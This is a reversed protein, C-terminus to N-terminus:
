DWWWNAHDPDSAKSHVQTLSAKKEPKEVATWPNIQVGGAAIMTKRTKKVLSASTAVQKPAPLKATLLGPHEGSLLPFSQGAKAFLRQKVILASVVALDMCNRLQGFVPDAMALDEYRNTMLDAWGQSIPDAQGSPHAVGNADLYDNETLCRVSAGRVEWALGADDRLLPQYNPELWWRPMMNRLGSGTAKAMEVYSPLGQVPSPDLALSVRKMRYDAGVMVRAFHTSGPVGRVTITQPGVQEEVGQAATQADVGRLQRMLSEVRRIGEPTPNISCSLVSPENLAARLAVLFDDLLMVPRGTTVGVVYGQPDIRWGEAPGVLVIDKQDPYVLVYDIRQLGALYVIPDPLPTAEAVFQRIAAELKRLSVKRLGCTQNMANPVPDMADRLIQSLRDVKDRSTNTLMGAADISVGGVINFVQLNANTNNNTAANAPSSWAAVALVIAPLLIVRRVLRAIHADIPM